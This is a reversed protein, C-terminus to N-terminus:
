PPDGLSLRSFSSDLSSGEQLIPDVVLVKLVSGAVPVFSSARAIKEVADAIRDLMGGNHSVRKAVESDAVSL